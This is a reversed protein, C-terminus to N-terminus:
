RARLLATNVQKTEGAGGWSVMAEPGILQMRPYGLSDTTGRAIEVRHVESDQSRIQAAVLRSTGDERTLWTVFVDGPGLFVIAPRGIPQVRAGAVDIKRVMPFTLGGNDSFAVQLSAKEEIGTYWAVAIENQRAALAAGNVPCGDLHWGDNNLTRGTQWRGADERATYIDRIEDSTHNRYATVFGSSTKALSTPCCTCVDDDVTQENSAVGSSAIVASMLRYTHKTEYDRSDLWVITAHNEDRVALSAFSHEGDTRDSHVITPPTWNRGQDSSASTFLYNGPWKNGQVIPLKESWVALLSRNPLMLVWPPAEAYKDFNKRTVITQAASWEQAGRVAFRLAMADDLPDVWSLLVNGDPTATENPTISAPGAPNPVLQASVEAHKKCATTCLLILSIGLAAAAVFHTASRM